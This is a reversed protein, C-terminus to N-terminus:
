LEDDFESRVSNNNKTKARISKKTTASFPLIVRVADIRSRSDILYDAIELQEKQFISLEILAEKNGKKHLANLRNIEHNYSANMKETACRIIEESLKSALNESKTISNEIKSRISQLSKESSSISGDTTKVKLWRETYRNTVDSGDLDLVIRIPTPPLFRGVNLPQPAICEVVYILEILTESNEPDIFTSIATTGRESSLYLELAGTLMPHDITIFEIEERILALKRDFTIIPQEARPLPFATDTLMDTNLSYTKSSSEEIAIGFARLLRGMIIELNRSLIPNEIQDILEKSRGVNASVIEFLKDRPDTIETSLDILLQKTELIIKSAKDPSYVENIAQSLKNYMAEFVRGAAPVNNAFANLGEHFWRCLLEHSTGKLVPVHVTIEGHQGIRDLRGIRQELLEPNLPLDYLVISQCFQFNRGESGIESCIMVRSGDPSAFWAAYKDRQIITMEEHFLAADINAMKLIANQLNEAMERTSCIVLYKEKKTTLILDVLWEVRPDINKTKLNTDLLVINVIRRPFGAITRRTNRFTSRGIGYLDIKDKERIDISELLQKLELTEKKYDEFEAYRSPDLLKLSLFLNETGRQEPTASLFIINPTHESLKNVLLSEDSNKQLHHAEDVVIMDWTASIAKVTLSDNKSLLALDAVWCTSATFPNEEEPLNEAQENSFISATINFRRLLEVFWQHILPSPLLILIRNIRGTLLLRHLILCAEITKGLGTEDALLIRIYRRSTVTDAIYIQHPLLEIRSGVFGRVESQFVSAQFRLMDLRDEFDVAMDSKGIMLRQLPTSLNVTDSISAEAIHESGCIYTILGTTKDEHVSNITHRNHDKGFITDGANFVIRRIPATAISYRRVANSTPFTIEVTRFEKNTVIGLGLEPESDSSWRQGIAHQYKM